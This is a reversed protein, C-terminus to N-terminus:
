SVFSHNPDNIIGAKEGLLVDEGRGLTIICSDGDLNYKPGHWAGNINGSLLVFASRQQLYFPTKNHSATATDNITCDSYMLLLSQRRILILNSQDENTGANITNGEGFLLASFREFLFPLNAADTNVTFTCNDVRVSSHSTGILISKNNPQTINIDSLRLGTNNIEFQSTLNVNFGNGKISVDNEQYTFSFDSDGSYDSLFQFSTGQNNRTKFNDNYYSVASQLTQFPRMESGDATADNGTNSIYFINSPNNIKKWFKNALDQSLNEAVLNPIKKYDTM